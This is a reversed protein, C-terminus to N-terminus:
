GFIDTILRDVEEDTATNDEPPEGPDACGFVSGIMESVEEDTATACASNKIELIVEALTKGEFGAASLDGIVAMIQEYSDDTGPQCGCGGSGAGLSAPRLIMGTVCWGTKKRETGKVGYVLTQLRVGGRKLCEAPITCRDEELVVAISAGGAEFLATKVYGEWDKSFTFEVAYRRAADQILTEDEVLRTYPGAIEIKM